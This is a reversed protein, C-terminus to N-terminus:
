KYGVLFFQTENLPMKDDIQLWSAFVEKGFINIPKKILTYDRGRQWITNISIKM